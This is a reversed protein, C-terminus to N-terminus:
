VLLYRLYDNKEAIYRTINFMNEGFENARDFAETRLTKDSFHEKLQAETVNTLNLFWTYHDCIASHDRSLEPFGNVAVELRKFPTLSSMELIDETGIPHKQSVIYCISAYCTMMRSFKLKLNKIKQAIKKDHNDLPQNRKNEYNLCLTKWFRLIDNVLFTPVFKKPHDPYDRFYAGLIDKLIAEHTHKGYVCRSELVMLMRATFFNLHDDNPGGLEDLIRPKELIKLYQGDNSFKPFSMNDAVSIITSFLRLSSITPTDLKDLEGDLIFFLDIDSHESAELRAYSGAVFITLNQFDTVEQQNSIKQKFLDIKDRSNREKVTKIDM